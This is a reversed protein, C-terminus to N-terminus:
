NIIPKGTIQSSENFVDGKLLINVSLEEDDERKQKNTTFDFTGSLDDHSSGLSTLKRSNKNSLLEPDFNCYNITEQDFDQKFSTSINTLGSTDGINFIIIQNTNVKDAIIRSESANSGSHTQNNMKKIHTVNRVLQNATQHIPNGCFVTNALYFLTLGFIWMQRM